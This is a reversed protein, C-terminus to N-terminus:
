SAPFKEEFSRHSRGEVSCTRVGGTDNALSQFIVVYPCEMGAMAISSRYCKCRIVPFSGLRNTRRNDASERLSDVM